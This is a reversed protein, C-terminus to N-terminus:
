AAASDRRPRRILYIGWAAIAAVIHGLTVLLAINFLSQSQLLEENKTRDFEILLGVETQHIREDPVFVFRRPETTIPKGYVELRDALPDEPTLGMDELSSRDEPPYVFQMEYGSVGTQNDIVSATVYWAPLLFTLILAIRKM